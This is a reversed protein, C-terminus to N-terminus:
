CLFACLLVLILVLIHRECTNEEIYASTVIKLRIVQVSTRTVTEHKEPRVSVHCVMKTLCQTMACVGAHSSEEKVPRLARPGHMGSVM